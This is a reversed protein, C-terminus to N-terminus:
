ISGYSNYFTETSIINMWYNKYITFNKFNIDTNISIIQQTGHGIVGCGYDCNVVFMNLNNRYSRLSVWEKWIDGTWEKSVRPVLQM